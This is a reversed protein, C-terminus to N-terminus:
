YPFLKEVYIYLWIKSKDNMILDEKSPIEGDRRWCFLVNQNLQKKYWLIDETLM